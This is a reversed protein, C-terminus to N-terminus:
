RSSDGSASGGCDVSKAVPSPKPLESPWRVECVEAVGYISRKVSNSQNGGLGPVTAASKKLDAASCDGDAFTVHNGSGASCNGSHNLHMVAGRPIGDQKWDIAQGYKAWNKAGAAGTVWKQGTESNMALVFLGCWAFSSGIITKYNLGAKPWFKSLWAGFKSDSEKSGVYKKAEEYAPNASPSAHVPPPVEEKKKATAIIEFDYKETEALTKPGFEGDDKLLSGRNNMARQLKKVFELLSM